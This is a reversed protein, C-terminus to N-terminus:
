QRYQTPPYGYQEKFIRSFHAPSEFGMTYCIESVTMPTTKLMDLSKELRKIRIWQAPPMNYISQFDRKFSSLSRGSLYALEPLTIPSAYNQEVVHRINARVPQLLQLIQRFTHQSCESVDFLLEMIKLKLLAPSVPSPANFYPKLSRIFTILRENMPNVSATIEGAIHPMKVDTTKVFEKLLEDKICIMTGDYINDNSADGIMEFQISTSKRLLIMENKRVTYTQKGHNLVIIGELMFILMHEQLFMTGKCEMNHICQEIVSCGDMLLTGYGVPESVLAAPIKLFKGM